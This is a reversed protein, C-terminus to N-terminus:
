FVVADKLSPLTSTQAGVCVGSRASVTSALRSPMGALRTVMWWVRAPPPKPRRRILSGTQSAASIEAAVAERAREGDVKAWHHRAAQRLYSERVRGLLPLDREYRDRGAQKRSLATEPHIDLLVTNEIAAGDDESRAWAAPALLLGAALTWVAMRSRNGM